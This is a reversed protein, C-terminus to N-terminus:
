LEWSQLSFFNCLPMYGLWGDVGFPPAAKMPELLNQILNPLVPIIIGLGIVDVLLTIFIFLMGAPRTSKM